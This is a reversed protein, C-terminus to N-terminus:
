ACRKFHNHFYHLFFRRILRTDLERIRDVVRM